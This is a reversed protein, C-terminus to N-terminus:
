SRVAGSKRPRPVRGGAVRVAALPRRTSAAVARTALSRSRRRPTRAPPARTPAASRPRSRSGPWGSRAQSVVAAVAGRCRRWGGRCRAGASGGPGQTWPCPRVALATAGVRRPRGEGVGASWRPAPRVLIGDGRCRARAAGSSRSRSIKVQQWGASAASAWTASVRRRTHPTRGRVNGPREQYWLRRHGRWRVSAFPRSTRSSSWSRDRHSLAASASASRRIM